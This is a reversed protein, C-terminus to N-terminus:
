QATSREPTRPPPVRERSDLKFICRDGGQGPARITSFSGDTLSYILEDITCEDRGDTYFTDGKFRVRNSAGEFEIADARGNVRRSTGAPQHSFTAQSGQVRASLLKEDRFIILASDADLLAGRYDIHVGGSLTLEEVNNDPLRALRALKATIHMDKSHSIEADHILASGDQPTYDVKSWSKFVLEGSLEAPIAPKMVPLAVAMILVAVLAARDSLFRAM